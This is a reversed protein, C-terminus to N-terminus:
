DALRAVISALPSSRGLSIDIVPNAPVSSAEIQRDWAVVSDVDTAGIILAVRYMNAEQSLDTMPQPKNSRTVTLSM